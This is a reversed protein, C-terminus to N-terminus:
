SFIFLIISLLHLALNTLFLIMVPINIDYNREYEYEEYFFHYYDNDVVCNKILQDIIFLISVLLLPIFHYKSKRGLIGNLLNQDKKYTTFILYIILGALSIM